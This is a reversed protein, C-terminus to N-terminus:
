NNLAGENIWQQILQIQENTLDTGRKPMEGNKIQEFLLSNNADGVIIVQGNQSGSILSEYSETSLGESPFEGGHCKICHKELIPQIDNRFSTNEFIDASPAVTVIKISESQFIVFTSLLSLAIISLIVQKKM